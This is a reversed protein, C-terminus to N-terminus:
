TKIEKQKWRIAADLYDHPTVEAIWVEFVDGVAKQMYALLAADDLVLAMVEVEQATNLIDSIVETRETPSLFAFMAQAMAAKARITPFVGGTDNEELTSVAADAMLEKEKETPYRSSM